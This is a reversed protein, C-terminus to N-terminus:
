WVEVEVYLARKFLERLLGSGGQDRSLMCSLYWHGPPKEVIMDGRLPYTSARSLSKAFGQLGCYFFHLSKWPFKKSALVPSYM